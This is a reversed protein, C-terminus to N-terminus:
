FTDLIDKLWSVRRATMELRWGTTILGASTGGLVSMMTDCSGERYKLWARQSDRLLIKQKEDMAQMTKKYTANLLAEMREEEATLCDQMAVTVGGSKEMCQAYEASLLSNQTSANGQTPQQIVHGSKYVEMRSCEEGYVNWFQQVDYNVSVRNGEEGLEQDLQDPDALMFVSEGSDLQFAGYCMDGCQSGKYVGTLTGSDLVKSPCLAESDAYANPTLCLLVLFPGIWKPTRM